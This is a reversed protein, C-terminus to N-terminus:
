RPDFLSPPLKKGDLLQAIRKGGYISHLIGVGNCGLNYLLIPNKPEFGVRRVGSPTYGMLGHWVFSRKAPALGQKFIEQVSWELEQEVDPPCTAHADYTARDPLLREPGGISLLMGKGHKVHEYPRRTFYPYPDLHSKQNQMYHLAAPPATGEQMYGSMYGIMGQVTAHLAADIPAGAHNEITLNEFGNTCLVVHKATIRAAKTHLVASAKNLTIREVPLHEVVTFREGYSATLYGVLEECFLASNMCARKSAVAAVYQANDTELMRLILSHPLETILHLYPQPIDQLIKASAMVFIPETPLGMGIRLECSELARLLHESTCIGEYGTCRYLPTQLDSAQRIGHLLDWAGELDAFARGVLQTGFEAVLDKMPREIHAVVQGANHGTAGHAIRGADILLVSANTQRLLFYATSVGAIGAGIVAVDPHVDRDLRFAAREQKLQALWPSTNQIM